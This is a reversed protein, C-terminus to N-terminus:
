TTKEQRKIARWLALNNNMDTCYDHFAKVQADVTNPTQGAHIVRAPLQQNVIQQHLTNLEVLALDGDNGNAYLINPDLPDPAIYGAERM